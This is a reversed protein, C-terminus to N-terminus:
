EIRVELSRHRGSVNHRFFEPKYHEIDHRFFSRLHVDQRGCFITLSYRNVRHICWNLAITQYLKKKRAYNTPISRYPAYLYIEFSPPLEM